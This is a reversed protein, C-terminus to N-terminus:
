GISRMGEVTLNAANFGGPSAPPLDPIVFRIRRPCATMSLSWGYYAGGTLVASIPIPSVQTQTTDTDHYLWEIKTPQASLGAGGFFEYGYLQHWDADAATEGLPLPCCEVYIARNTTLTVAPDPKMYLVCHTMSSLDVEPSADGADVAGLDFVVNRRKVPM